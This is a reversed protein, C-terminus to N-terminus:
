KACKSETRGKAIADQATAFCIVNEPKIQKAWPCSSLYFKNSNKSGVYACNGANSVSSNQLESKMIIADNQGSLVEGSVGPPENKAMEGEQPTSSQQEIVLPKQQWKQGQLVGIEFSIASILCFGIFIVIKRENKIFFHKIRFLINKNKDTSM